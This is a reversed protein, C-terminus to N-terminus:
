RDHFPTRAICWVSVCEVGSKKLSKALAEVTTGTTMVDDIIAVHKPIKQLSSIAFANNLNRRRQKASLGQQHPTNVLRKAVNSKVPIALQRSLELAWEFSQNHGRKIARLPHLPVPILVDPANQSIQKEFRAVFLDAFLGIEQRCASAKLRNIPQTLPFEYRLASYTQEFHPPQKICRACALGHAQEPLPEACHRCYSALWPLDNFCGECVLQHQLTPLQCFCCHCSPSLVLAQRIRSLFGLSYYVWNRSITSLKM